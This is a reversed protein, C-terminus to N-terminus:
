RVKLDRISLSLVEHYITQNLHFCLAQGQIACSLSTSMCKELQDSRLLAEHDDSGPSASLVQRQDPPKKRYIVPQRRNIWPDYSSDESDSDTEM